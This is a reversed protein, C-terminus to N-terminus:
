DRCVDCGGSGRPCLTPFHGVLVRALRILDAVGITGHPCCTINAARRDITVDQGAIYRALLTADASTVRGDGNIDGMRVSERKVSVQANGYVAPTQVSTARVTIQTATENQAITLEGGSSIQTAPSNQGSISWVVETSPNNEGTVNATFTHTDGQALSLEAPSVTVGTVVPYASFRIVSVQTSDYVAPTEVSTARVTIQTATENQAITLEGGSSIQTAPSNQGSISWVVETSPNNEGTVTAAFTYTEGQTLSVEAPSVTVGTVVPLKIVYVQAEDYVTPTEVSTARVTITAATENQAITLAGESTILTAPSNQGSLSWIVETSPDNEGTVDATFTYTEGQALSLASPSVTVSSVFALAPQTTITIAAIIEARTNNTGAVVITENYIGGALDYLPQVTFYATDGADLVNRSLLGVIFNQATPSRLTVAQSGTNTITVTQAGPLPDGYEFAGFHLLQSAAIGYTGGPIVEISATVSGDLGNSAFIEIVESHTGEYLGFRPQVTFRASEDAALVTETLEGIIFDYATPQQLTITGTGSNVIVVEQLPADTYGEQVDEFPLLESVEMEYFVNPEVNFLVDVSTVTNNSGRIIITEDHLDVELGSAPRVTFTATQAPLLLAHSLRGVDFRNSVPQQLTVNGTSINTVTVTQLAPPVAGYLATGFCLTGTAAIAYAGTAQPVVNVTATVETATGDSGLIAIAETHEGFTLTDRPRVTFTATGGMPLNTTNLEGIEFYDSVPQTLTVPENGINAVTVTQAPPPTEDEVMLAFPNLRTARIEHVADDTVVFEATFSGMPTLTSGSLHNVTFTEQYIGPPLNPRPQVNIPFNNAGGAYITNGGNNRPVTATPTATFYRMPHGGGGVWREMLTATADFNSNNRMIITQAPPVPDGERRTGFHQLGIFEVERRVTPEITASVEVTVSRGGTADFTFTDTHTGVALGVRPRYNLTLTAGPQLTFPWRITGLPDWTFLGNQSNRGSLNPFVVPESSNNIITFPRRVGISMNNNFGVALPYLPVIDVVALEFFEVRVTATIAAAGGDWTINITQTHLGTALTELPLLTFTATEGPALETRCLDGVVFVTSTPQNLTITDDGTNTVYVTQKEPIEGLELEGFSVVGLEKTYRLLIGAQAGNNGRVIIDENFTGVALNQRPAITFTAYEGPLLSEQSFGSIVYNSSTPQELTIERSGTNTVTITQPVPHTNVFDTETFSLISPYVSIRYYLSDGIRTEAKIGAAWSSRRWTGHSFIYSPVRSGREIPPTGSPFHVALAFREGVERQLEYPIPITHFGAREPAYAFIPPVNGSTIDHLDGTGLYDPIFYIRVSENPRNFFVRLGTLIETPDNATFVNALYTVPTLWGWVGAGGAEYLNIGTPFARAPAFAFNDRTAIHHEFSVWFYGDDGWWCGWTNKMLWAGDQSPRRNFLTRPFNDDWGVITVLHAGSGGGNLTSHTANFASGQPAPFSATVSGFDMIAQKILDQRVAPAISSHTIQYIGPIFYSPLIARTQAVPRSPMSRPANPIRDAAESVAGHITGRMLYAAVMDVNGGASPSRSFGRYNGGANSLAHTMHQISFFIPTGLYRYTSAEMASVAAFAWCLSVRGQDRVPTQQRRELNWTEPFATFLSVPLDDCDWDPLAIGLPTVEEDWDFDMDPFFVQMENNGEYGIAAVPMMHATLMLLALLLCTFKKM